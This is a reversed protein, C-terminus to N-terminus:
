GHRIELAKNVPCDKFLMVCADIIVETPLIDWVTDTELNKQMWRRLYHRAQNARVERVQGPTTKTLFARYMGTGGVEWGNKNFRCGGAAFIMTKTKKEVKAITLGNMGYHYAVDDGVNVEDILM